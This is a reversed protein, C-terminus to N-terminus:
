ESVAACLSAQMAQVLLAARARAMPLQLRDAPTEAADDGKSAGAPAASAAPRKAGALEGLRWHCDTSQRDTTDHGPLHM